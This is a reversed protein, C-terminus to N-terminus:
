GWPDEDDLDSKTIEPSEYTQIEPLLPIYGVERLMDEETKLMYVLRFMEGFRTLGNVKGYKEIYEGLIDKEISTTSGLVWKDILANAKVEGVKEIGEINDTLDGTLMQEYLFRMADQESVTIFGKSSAMGPIKNGNKDKDPVMQYNYHTGACQKLVDKDPSCIITNRYSFYAVADDAELGKLTIAGYEAKLLERLVYMWKPKDKSRKGKYPRTTAINYRFCDSGTLFAIYKNTGTETFIRNMREHVGEIAWELKERHAEYYLISDIDILLIKDNNVM